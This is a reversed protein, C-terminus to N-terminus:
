SSVSRTASGRSASRTFPRLHNGKILPDSTDCSQSEKTRGPRVLNGAGNDDTGVDMGQTSHGHELPDSQQQVDDAWGPLTKEPPTKYPSILTGKTAILEERSRQTSAASALSVNANMPSPSRQDATTIVPIRRQIIEQSRAFEKIFEDGLREPYAAQVDRIKKTKADQGKGNAKVAGKGAPVAAQSSAACGM